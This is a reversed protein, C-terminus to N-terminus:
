PDSVKLRRELEKILDGQTSRLAMYVYFGERQKAVRYALKRTGWKTWKRWRAATSPRPRTRADRYDQRDRRGADGAHLYFDSRVFTRGHKRTETDRCKREPESLKSWNARREKPRTRRSVRRNFRNMAQATGM